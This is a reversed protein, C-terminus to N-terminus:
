IIKTAQFIIIKSGLKQSSVRIKDINSINNGFIHKNKNMFTYMLIWLLELNTQQNRLSTKPWLMHSLFIPNM